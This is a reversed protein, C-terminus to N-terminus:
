AHTASAEPQIIAVTSASAAEASTTVRPNQTWLRTTSVAPPMDTVNALNVRIATHAIAMVSHSPM